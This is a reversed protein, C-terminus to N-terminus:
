RRFPSGLEAPRTSPLPEKPPVRDGFRDGSGALPLWSWGVGALEHVGTLTQSKLSKRRFAFFGLVSALTELLGGGEAERPWRVALVALIRRQLVQLIVSARM